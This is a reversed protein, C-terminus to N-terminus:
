KSKTYTAGGISITKNGDADKGEEFSFTGNYTSSGDGEFTFTIELKGDDNEAIEYKGEFTESSSMGLLSTTVTLNVNSGKFEYAAKAGALGGLSLEGTYTGSITKGCSVLSLALMTVIMVVAIIKISKKM